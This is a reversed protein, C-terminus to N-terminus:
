QVLADIDSRAGSLASSETLAGSNISEVMLRFAKDTGEPNPDLWAHANLAAQNITTQRADKGSDAGLLDRRVSPLKASQSFVEAYNKQSLLYAAQMAEVPHKSARLVGLGLIDGYVTNVAEAPNAPRITPVAAVDFSLHPNAEVIHALDSAKGIYLALKGAIFMDRSNPLASNWSYATKSPDGFQGYFRLASATADLTQSGRTGLIARASIGKDLYVPETISDGTQLFLTALIDKAYSINRYGGLAIASQQISAHSDKATLKPPFTLVEDWYKPPNTIGASSLLSKNWYMVLPDVAVPLALAGENTLFIDAGDTYTDFYQRQSFQEFLLPQLKNSQRVLLKQPMFVVDPGEGSALANVLDQEFTEPNKEVYEVRGVTAANDQNFPQIYPQIDAQPFTGWISVTVNSGAGQPGGGFGSFVLIALVTVFVAGGLILYQFTTNSM